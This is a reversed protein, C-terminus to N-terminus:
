KVERNSAQMAGWRGIEEPGRGLRAVRAASEITVVAPTSTNHLGFWPNSHLRFLVSLKDRYMTSLPDQM